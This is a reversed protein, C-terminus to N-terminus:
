SSPQQSWLHDWFREELKAQAQDLVRLLDEFKERRFSRQVKALDGLDYQDVEIGLPPSPEADLMEEIVMEEHVWHRRLEIHELFQKVQDYGVDALCSLLMKVNDRLYVYMDRERDDPNWGFTVRTPPKIPPRTGFPKTVPLEDVM